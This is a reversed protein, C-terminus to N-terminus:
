LNDYYNCKELQAVVWKENLGLAYADAIFNIAKETWHERYESDMSKDYFEYLREKVSM